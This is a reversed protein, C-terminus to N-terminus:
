KPHARMKRDQLYTEDVNPTKFNIYPKPNLYKRNQTLVEAPRGYM